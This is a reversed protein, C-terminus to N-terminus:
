LLHGGLFHGLVQALDAAGVNTDSRFVLRGGIGTPHEHPRRSKGPTFAERHVLQPRLLPDDPRDAAIQHDDSSLRAPRDVPRIM